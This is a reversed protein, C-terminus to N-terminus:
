DKRLLKGQIPRTFSGEPLGVIRIRAKGLLRRVEEFNQHVLLLRCKVGPPVQPRDSLLLLTGGQSSIRTLGALLEGSRRALAFYASIERWQEPTLNIIV